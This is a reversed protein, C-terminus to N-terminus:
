ISNQINSIIIIAKDDNSQELKQEGKRFYSVLFQCEQAVVGTLVWQFLEKRALPLPFPDTVVWINQLEALVHLCQLHDISFTLLM